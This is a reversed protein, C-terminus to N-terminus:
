LFAIFIPTGCAKWSPRPIWCQNSRILSPIKFLPLSLLDWSGEM